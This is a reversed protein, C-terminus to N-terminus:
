SQLYSSKRTKEIIKQKGGGQVLLVLKRWTSALWPKLWQEAFGDETSRVQYLSKCQARAMSLFPTIKKQNMTGKQKLTM